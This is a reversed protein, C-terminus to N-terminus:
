LFGYKKSCTVRSDTDTSCTVHSDTDAVALWARQMQVHLSTRIIFDNDGYCWAIGSFYWENTATLMTVRAACEYCYLRCCVQSIKQYLKTSHHYNYLLPYRKQIGLANQVLRSVWFWSWRPDSETNHLFLLALHHRPILSVLSLIDTLNHASQYCLSKGKKELALDTRPVHTLTVSAGTSTNEFSKNSNERVSQICPSSSLPNECIIHSLYQTYSGSQLYISRTTLYVSGVTKCFDLTWEIDSACLTHCVTVSIRCTVRWNYPKVTQIVYQINNRCSCFAEPWYQSVPTGLIHSGHSVVLRWNLLLNQSTPVALSYWKSSCTYLLKHSATRLLTLSGYM